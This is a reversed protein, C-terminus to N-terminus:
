RYMAVVADIENKKTVSSVVYTGCPAWCIHGCLAVCEVLRFGWLMRPECDVSSLCLRLSKNTM